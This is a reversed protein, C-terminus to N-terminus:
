GTAGASREALEEVLADAAARLAPVATRVLDDTM